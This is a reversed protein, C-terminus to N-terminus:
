EHHHHGHAAAGAPFKFSKLKLAVANTDGERVKYFQDMALGTLTQTKGTVPWFIEVARISKSQGLGIEQRFPSAGFSGGTCVTKCIVQEGSATKVTVKIRAGIAARNSQVGELKLTIM